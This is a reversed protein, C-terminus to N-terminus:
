NILVLSNRFTLATGMCLKVQWELFWTSYLSWFIWTIQAFISDLLFGAGPQYAALLKAKTIAFSAVGMAPGTVLTITVIIKEWTIAMKQMKIGLSYHLKRQRQKTQILKHHPPPGPHIAFVGDFFHLAEQRNYNFSNRSMLQKM